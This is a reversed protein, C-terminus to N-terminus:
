TRRGSASATARRSGSRRLGIALDESRRLLDAYTWRVGQHRTVLALREPGDATVRRLLAGITEGLLPTSSAGHVYSQALPAM